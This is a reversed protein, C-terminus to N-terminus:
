GKGTDGKKNEFTAPNAMSSQANQSPQRSEADTDRNVKNEENEYVDEPFELENFTSESVFGKEQWENQLEDFTVKILEVMENPVKRGCTALLANLDPWKNENSDIFGVKVMGEVLAERKASQGFAESFCVLFDVVDNKMGGLCLGYEEEALKLVKKFTEEKVENGKTSLEKTFQTQVLKRQSRFTEVVDCPQEVSSRAPNHKNATIKLKKYLNTMDPETINMLQPIGGDM